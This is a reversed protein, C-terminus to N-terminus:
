RHGGRLCMHWPNSAVRSAKCPMAPRTGGAAAQRQVNLVRTRAAAKALAIAARWLGFPTPPLVCGVSSCQML